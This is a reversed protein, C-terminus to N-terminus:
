GKVRKLTRKLDCSSNFADEGGFTGQAPVAPATTTANGTTTAKTASNIKVKLDIKYTYTM